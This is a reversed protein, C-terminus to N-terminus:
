HSISDPNNLNIQNTKFSQSILNLDSIIENQFNYDYKDKIFGRTYVALFVIPIVSVIFFSAFLKERFNLRFKRLKFILLSSIIALTFLYVFVVFLIYKLYFFTILKFDNRKLSISFIREASRSVQPAIIYFTRYKDNNIIEYRWDTKDEKDRVSERFVDLSMTNAKSLDQNTSTVIEGGSYETIIPTSILKDFLNDKSYNKFLQMSSQTLFNKSEYQVAILLYGLNTEFSTNKLGIKELPVIGLYYKDSENKLIVIKDTIFLSNLDESMTETFLDSEESDEMAINELTDNESSTDSLSKYLVEKRFFNEGAYKVISDPNLVQSNFIFDSLITKNTDLIIVATNFNEESFKSDSWVSFGLEPLKAKIKLNKEINRDESFNSLETMLLFKIKDDDQETIKRGILEVFYTEQSTIKELLIGPVTIICFLIVVSFNKISFLNYSKTLILKRALYVGFTFSFVIIFLRYLYDIKVDEIFTTMLQNILLLILFILLSSYKGFFIIRSIESSSNKIILIIISLLFVFLSFSLLLVILQIIFLEINPIISTKDFFKLNSDFVISQIVSGFVYILAFFTAILIFNRLHILFILGPSVQSKKKLGYKSIMILGYISIILVFVATILFEGISRAIGIGFSSAYFGPSFIESDFANSPFHFELWVFRIGTMIFVFFLFKIPAQDIHSLLKSCILFFLVTLGFILFSIIRDALTRINQAHSVESYKPLLLIGIISGDIGKLDIAANEALAASDLDIKGSIIDAPLIESAVELTKNIDNLFGVDRFFRNNIQYKIDVLKANLIVGTIQSNDKPDYVPSYIILYTYFGVEKLVSFKKGNVCRQLSYIDSDLRRGKFALLELRTNYIEIQYNDDLNLKLVQEFLKKSDSRQIQKVLDQDSIIKETIDNLGKQFENFSNLVIRSQETNKETSIENWNQAINSQIYSSFLHIVVIWVFILFAILTLTKLRRDFLINKKTNIPTNNEM